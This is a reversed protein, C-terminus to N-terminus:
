LRYLYKKSFGDLNKFSLKEGSKTMLVGEFNGYLTHQDFRLVFISKKDHNDSYPTFTLDVMNETDQIIWQNMIGYHHTIMVPPLPTVEGDYFLINSNYNYPDVAEHSTATIRLAVNKGNITGLAFVFEGHARFRLYSRTISWLCIGEGDQMIKPDRKKPFLNLTGKVPATMSFLASVRRSTPAPTVSTIEASKPDSLTANLAAVAHPYASNDQINFLVTLRDHKRDWSIRIYKHKKFCSTSAAELDHPVFRKRPGMVTRYICKQKSQKNWFAVEAFGVIKADLFYVYGIYDGINFHFSVQSKIRLNTIFTPLPIIGYPRKVGRIDMRAPHGSFTGFVPKGNHVFSAPETSITRSYM